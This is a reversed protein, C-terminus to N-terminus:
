PRHYPLVRASSTDSYTHRREKDHAMCVYGDAPSLYEILITVSLHKGYRDVYLHRLFPRASRGLRALLM